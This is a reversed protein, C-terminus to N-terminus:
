GNFDHFYYKIAKIVDDIFNPSGLDFLQSLEPPVLHLFKWRYYTARLTTNVLNFTISQSKKESKSLNEDYVIITYIKAKNWVKPIISYRKGIREQMEAALEIIFFENNSM